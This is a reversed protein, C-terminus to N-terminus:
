MAFPDWTMLTGGDVVGGLVVLCMGSGTSSAGSVEDLVLSGDTWVNPNAPLRRAVDNRDFEGPVDWEFLLRSSSYSGLASVCIALVKQGFLLVM